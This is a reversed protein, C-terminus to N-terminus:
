VGAEDAKKENTEGTKKKPKEPKRGRKGANKEAERRARSLSEPTMNLFSAVYRYSIRGNVGPYEKAFWRYRREVDYLALVSNIEAYLELLELLKGYFCKGLEPFQATLEEFRDLPICIVIGDTLAQLTVRSPESLRGSPLFPIRHQGSFFETHEGGSEDTFFSRGIGEAQFMLNRPVEGAKLLIQRRRVLQIFAGEELRKLLERDEIKYYKRFFDRLNINTMSENKYEVQRIM